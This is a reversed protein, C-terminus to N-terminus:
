LLNHFIGLFGVLKLFESSTDHQALTNYVVNKNLDFHVQKKSIEQTEEEPFTHLFRPRTSSDFSSSSDNMETLPFPNNVTQMSTQFLFYVSFEFFFSVTQVSKGGVRPQLGNRQKTNKTEALSLRKQMDQLEEKYKKVERMHNNQFCITKILCLVKQQEMTRELRAKMEDRAEIESKLGLYMYLKHHCERKIEEDKGKLTVRMTALASKSAVTM